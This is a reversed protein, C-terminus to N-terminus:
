GSSSDFSLEKTQGFESLRTYYNGKLFYIIKIATFNVRGYKLKQM